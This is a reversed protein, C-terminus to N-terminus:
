SKFSKYEPCTSREQGETRGKMNIAAKPCYQICGFCWICKYGFHPIGDKMEINGMPCRRACASCGVCADSVTFGKSSVLFRNFAANVPGSMFGPLIVNGSDELIEGKRIRAALSKLEPLIKELHRQTEEPTPHSSTLPYQNPMDVSTFGGYDLGKTIIIKQMYKAATGSQSERTAICYVVNSGTLNAKRILEEVVLPYRWAYIPAVFIFPRESQVSLTKGSRTYDAMNILDDCLVDALAEAVFKSNGTGSFYLIM